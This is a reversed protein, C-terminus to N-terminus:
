KIKLEGNLPARRRTEVVQTFYIFSQKFYENAYLKFNNGIITTAGNQTSLVVADMVAKTGTAFKEFEFVGVPRNNLLIFYIVKLFIKFFNCM